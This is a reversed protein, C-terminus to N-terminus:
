KNGFSKNAWNWIYNNGEGARMLNVGAGLLAAQAGFSPRTAMANNYSAIDDEREYQRGLLSMGLQRTQDNMAQQQSQEFKNINTGMKNQAIIYAQQPNMGSSILQKAYEDINQNNTANFSNRQSELQSNDTVWKQAEEMADFPTLGMEAATKPKQQFAGAIAGIGAGALAGWPGISAGTAAGGLAGQGINRAQWWSM